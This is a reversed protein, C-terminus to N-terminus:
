LELLWISDPAYRSLTPLRRATEARDLRRLHGFKGLGGADPARAPAVILFVVRQRLSGVKKLDFVHQVHACPDISTVEPAMHHRMAFAVQCFRVDTVLVDDESELLADFERALDRLDATEGNALERCIAPTCFATM